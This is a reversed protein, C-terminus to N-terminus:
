QMQNLVKLPSIDTIKNEWFNLIKVASKNKIVDLATLKLLGRSTLDLNIESKGAEREIVELIEQRELFEDINNSDNAFDLIMVKKDEAQEIVM